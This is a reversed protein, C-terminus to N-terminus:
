CKVNLMTSTSERIMEAPFNFTLGGGYYLNYTRRFHFQRLINGTLFLKTFAGDADSVEPTEVSSQYGFTGELILNTALHYGFSGSVIIGGTDM